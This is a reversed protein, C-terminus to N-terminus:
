GLMKSNLLNGNLLTSNGSPAFTTPTQGTGQLFIPPPDPRTWPPAPRDPMGKLYDQQNRPEWCIPCCMLNNWQKKLYSAKWKLGCQDCRANWNGPSFFDFRGRLIGRTGSAWGNSM